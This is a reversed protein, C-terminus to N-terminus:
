LITLNARLFGFSSDRFGFCIRFGLKWIVFVSRKYAPANQTKLKPCKVNNRIELKPNRTKDRRYASAGQNSRRLEATGTEHTHHNRVLLVGPQPSFISGVFRPALILVSPIVVYAAPSRADSARM